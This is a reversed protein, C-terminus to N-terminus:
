WLQLNVVHNVFVVAQTGEVFVVIVGFARQGALKIGILILVALKNLTRLTLYPLVLLELLVDEIGIIISLHSLQADIQIDISEKVFCLSGSVCRFM